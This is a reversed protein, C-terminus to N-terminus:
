AGLFPLWNRENVVQFPAEPYATAWAPPV